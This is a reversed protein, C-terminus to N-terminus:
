TCIFCMNLCWMNNYLFRKLNAAAGFLGAEIIFSVNLSNWLYYQNITQYESNEPIANIYFIPNVRYLKWFWAGNRGISLICIQPWSMVSAVCKRNKATEEKQDSQDSTIVIQPGYLYRPLHAAWSIGSEDPQRARHFVKPPGIDCQTWLLNLESQKQLRRTQQRMLRQWIFQTYLLCPILYANLLIIALIINM